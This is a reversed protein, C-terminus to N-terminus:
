IRSSSQIPTVKVVPQAHERGLLCTWGDRFWEFLPAPLSDHKMKTVLLSCTFLIEFYM